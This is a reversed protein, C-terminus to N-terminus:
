RKCHTEAERAQEMRLLLDDKKERMEKEVLEERFADLTGRYFAVSDREEM